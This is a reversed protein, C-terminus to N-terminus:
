GLHKRFLQADDMLHVFPQVDYLYPRTGLDYRAFQIAQVGPLFPLIVMIPPAMRTSLVWFAFDEKKRMPFRVLAYAAPIGILLSFLTSLFGVKVSNFYYHLFSGDELVKSYNTYTPTFIFKPPLSFADVRTKLSTMVLWLIPFVFAAIMAWLLINFIVDQVKRPM